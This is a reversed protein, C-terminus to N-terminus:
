YNVVFYCPVHIPLQAFRESTSDLSCRSGYSLSTTSFHIKSKTLPNPSILSVPLLQLQSDHNITQSACRREADEVCLFKSNGEQQDFDNLDHM